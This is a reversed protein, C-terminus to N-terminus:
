SGRIKLTMLEKLGTVVTDIHVWLGPAKRLLTWLYVQMFFLIRNQTDENDSIKDRDNAVMNYLTECVTSFTVTVKVPHGRVNQITTDFSDDKFPNEISEMKAGCKPCRDYNSGLYNVYDCHICKVLLIVAVGKM